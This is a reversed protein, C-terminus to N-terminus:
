SRAIWRYPIRHTTNIRLAKNKQYNNKKFEATEILLQLADKTGSNPLHAYLAQYDAHLADLWQLNDSDAAFQTQHHQIASKIARTQDTDPALSVYRRYRYIAEIYDKKAQIETDALRRLTNSGGKITIFVSFILFAAWFLFNSTRQSM